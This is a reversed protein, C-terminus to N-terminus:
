AEEAEPDAGYKRVQKAVFGDVMAKYAKALSPDSKLANRIETKETPSLNAQIDVIRQLYERTIQM